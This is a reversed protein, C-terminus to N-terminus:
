RRGVRHAARQRMWRLAALAALGLLAVRALRRTRRLWLLKHARALMLCLFEGARLIM